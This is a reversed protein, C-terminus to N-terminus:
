HKMKYVFNTIKLNLANKFNHLYINHPANPLQFCHFIIYNIYSVKNIIYFQCQVILHLYLSFFLSFKFM